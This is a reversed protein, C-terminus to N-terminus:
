KKTQIIVGQGALYDKTQMKTNVTNNAVTLVDTAERKFDSWSKSFDDMDGELDLGSLAKLNGQDALEDGLYSKFNGMLDETEKLLMKMNM